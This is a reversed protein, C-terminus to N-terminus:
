RQRAIKEVCALYSEMMQTRLGINPIVDLKRLLEEEILQKDYGRKFLGVIRDCKTFLGYKNFTHDIYKVAETFTHTNPKPLVTAVKKGNIYKEGRRNIYIKENIKM